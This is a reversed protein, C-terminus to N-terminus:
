WLRVTGDMGGSVLTKGDPAFAVSWADNEHGKLIQRQQPDSLDWIGLCFNGGASALRQSDASFALSNHIGVHGRLPKLPQLSRFLTTYPFLTSRPPRRIM